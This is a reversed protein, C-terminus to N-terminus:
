KLSIELYCYVIFYNKQRLFYLIDLFIVWNKNLIIGKVEKHQM